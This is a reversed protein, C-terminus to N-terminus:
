ALFSTRTLYSTGYSAQAGQDTVSQKACNVLDENRRRHQEIGGVVCKLVKVTQASRAELARELLAQTGDDDELEVKPCALLLRDLFVDGNSTLADEQEAPPLLLSVHVCSACGPSLGVCNTTFGQAGFGLGSLLAASPRCSCGLAM